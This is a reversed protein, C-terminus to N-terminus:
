PAHRDLWLWMQAIEARQASVIEQAFMKVWPDQSNALAVTAMEIAGQHHPIMGCVFAMDFSAATLGRMMDSHMPEMSQLLAAHPTDAMAAMMDIHEQMGATEHDIGQQGCFAPIPIEAAAVSRQQDTVLLSGAFAAALVAGAGFKLLDMM